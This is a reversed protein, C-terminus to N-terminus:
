PKEVRGLRQRLYRQVERHARADAEKAREWPPTSPAGKLTQRAAEAILWSDATLADAMRVRGDATSPVFAGRRKARAMLQYRDDM